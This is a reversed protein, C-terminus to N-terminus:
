KGGDPVFTTGDWTGNIRRYRDEPNWPGVYLRAKEPKAKESGDANLGAALYLSERICSESVNKGSVLMVLLDSDPHPMAEVLADIQAKTPMTM